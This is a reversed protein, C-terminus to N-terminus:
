YVCSNLLTAKLIGLELTSKKLQTPNNIAGLFQGYARYITPSHAILKWTSMVFGRQKEGADYIRKVEPPADEPEVNSVFPM